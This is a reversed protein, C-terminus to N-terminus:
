CAGPGVLSLSCRDVVAPPPGRRHPLGRAAPAIPTSLVGAPVLVVPVVPTLRRAPRLVQRVIRATWRLLRAVTWAILVQAVLGLWVAREGAAALPSGSGPVRELLEQVVFLGVQAVGLDRATPLGRGNRRVSQVAVALMALLGAPVVVVAVSGIYAHGGLGLEEVARSPDAASYGAIHGLLVGAFALLLTHLRRLAVLHRVSGVAAREDRDAM